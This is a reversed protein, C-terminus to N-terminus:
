VAYSSVLHSSNLCTSKRDRHTVDFNGQGVPTFLGDRCLRTRDIDGPGDTRAQCVGGNRGLDVALHEVEGARDLLVGRQLDEGGPVRLRELDVAVGGGM